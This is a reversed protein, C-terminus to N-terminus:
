RCRDAMKPRTWNVEETERKRAARLRIGPKLPPIPDTNQRCSAQCPNAHGDPLLLGSVRATGGM